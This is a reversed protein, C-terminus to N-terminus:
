LLPLDNEVVRTVSDNAAVTYTQTETPWDFQEYALTARVTPVLSSTTPTLTPVREVTAYEVTVVEDPDVREVTSYEITDFLTTSVVHAIDVETKKYYDKYLANTDPALTQLQTSVLPTHVTNLKQNVKKVVEKVVLGELGMLSPLAVCVGVVAAAVVVVSLRM